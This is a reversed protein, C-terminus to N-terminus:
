WSFDCPSASRMTFRRTAVRGPWFQGPWGRLKKKAYELKMQDHRPLVDEFEALLDVFQQYENAHWAQDASNRVSRLMVHRTYEASEISRRNNLSMFYSRDGALIPECCSVLIDAIFVLYRHVELIDCSQFFSISNADPVEFERFVEGLNFPIRRCCKGNVLECFEVGVEFSRRYDYHVQISTDHSDIRVYSDSSAILVYNHMSMVSAFSDMVVARFNENVSM